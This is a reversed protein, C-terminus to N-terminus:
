LILISFKLRPAPLTAVLERRGTVPDWSVIMKYSMSPDNECVGGVFAIKNNFACMQYRYQVGSGTWADVTTWRKGDIHFCDLTGSNDSGRGGIYLNPDNPLAVMQLWEGRDRSDAPLDGYEIWINGDVCYCYLLYNPGVMWIVDRYLDYLPSITRHALQPPPSLAHKVANDLAWKTLGRYDAASLSFLCFSENSNRAPRSMIRHDLTYSSRSDVTRTSVGDENLWRNEIEDYREASSSWYWYFSNYVTIRDTSDLFIYPWDRNKQPAVIKSVHNDCLVEAYQVYEGASSHGGVIFMRDGVFDVVIEYLPVLLSDGTARRVRDV